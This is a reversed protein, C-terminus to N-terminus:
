RGSLPVGIGLFSHRLGSTFSIWAPRASPPGPENRMRSLAFCLDHIALGSSSLNQPRVEVLRPGQAVLLQLEQLHLSQLPLRGQRLQLHRRCEEDRDDKGHNFERKDPTNIV